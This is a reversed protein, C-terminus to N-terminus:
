RHVARFDAMCQQALPGGPHFALHRSTEETPTIEIWLTDTPMPSRVRDAWEVAVVADSAVLEDFGLAILESPGRLRYVDVHYLRLRGPYEHILTFTPSTIRRPDAVGNGHAIGKVLHTKGAGLPGVIGITVGGNLVRGLAAGIAHTTEVSTTEWTTRVDATTL